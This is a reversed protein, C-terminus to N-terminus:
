SRGEGPTVQCRLKEPELMWLGLPHTGGRHTEWKMEIGGLLKWFGPGEQHWAARGARTPSPAPSRVRRGTDQPLCLAPLRLLMPRQVSGLSRVM